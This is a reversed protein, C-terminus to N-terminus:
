RETWSPWASPMLSLSRRTGGCNRLSTMHRIQADTKMLEDGKTAMRVAVDGLSRRPAQPSMVREPLEIPALGHGPEALGATEPRGSAAGPKPPRRFIVFRRHSGSSTLAGDWLSARSRGLVLRATLAFPPPDRSVEM